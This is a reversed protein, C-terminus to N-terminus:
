LQVDVKMEQGDRMLTLNIKDGKKYGYLLTSLNSDQNVDSGNVKTIIDRIKLGAKQAPSGSIIALGQQGSASYILAGNETGLNQTVSLTKTVPVYYIGLVPDTDLQNAIMKDLAKKIKDSPLQFYKTQDNMSVEGIIGAVQGSYDVIPGGVSLKEAGFDTFFVGEAKEPVNLALGAINFTPNFSNLIGADFRNQYTPYDNGIAIVKEGAKYTSFDGFSVVPLNNANIKLFALNSWTDLGSFSADYVNGDATMVKYKYEMVGGTAGATKAYDLASVYTMIMGDSTAIVGTGNKPADKAAPNNKLEPDPYSIINVVASVVPNMLTAVSSDEKVYVQQTRNIVTVNEASSKLWEHKQFFDTTALHPFLFRDAWIGSMGSVLIIAIIISIKKFMKTNQESM